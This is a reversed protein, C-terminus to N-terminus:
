VVRKIDKILVYIHTDYYQFLMEDKLTFYYYLTDSEEKFIKHAKKLLNDSVAYQVLVQNNKICNIVTLKEFALDLDELKNSKDTYLVNKNKLIEVEDIEEVLEFSESWNNKMNNESEKGDQYQNAYDQSYNSNAEQFTFKVKM